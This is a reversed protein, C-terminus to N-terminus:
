TSCLLRQEVVLWNDRISRQADSETGVLDFVNRKTIKITLRTELRRIMHKPDQASNALCRGDKCSRTLAAEKLPPGREM